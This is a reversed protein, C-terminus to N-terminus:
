LESFDLMELVVTKEVTRRLLLLQNQNMGPVELDLINKPFPGVTLQQKLQNQNVSFLQVFSAKKDEQFFGRLGSHTPPNAMVAVLRQNPLYVPPFRLPESIIARRWNERLPKLTFPTVGYNGNSKSHVSQNEILRLNGNSGIEVWQGHSLYRLTMLRSSGPLHATRNKKYGSSTTKLLSIEDKWLTELDFSQSMMRDNVPRVLRWNSQDFTSLQVTGDAFRLTYINTKLRNGTLFTVTAIAIKPRDPLSHSDLYLIKGPVRLKTRNGLLRLNEKGLHVRLHKSTASLLLLKGDLKGTEFQLYNINGRWIVTRQHLLNPPRRDQIERDSFNGFDYTKALADEGAITVGVLVILLLLIYKKM